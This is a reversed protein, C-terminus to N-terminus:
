FITQIYIYGYVMEEVLLSDKLVENYSKYNFFDEAQANINLVFLLMFLLVRRM